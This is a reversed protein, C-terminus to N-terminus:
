NEPKATVLLIRVNASSTPLQKANTEIRGMAKLSKACALAIEKKACATSM